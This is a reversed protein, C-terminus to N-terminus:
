VVASLYKFHSNRHPWQSKYSNLWMIFWSWQWHQTWFSNGTAVSSEQLSVWELSESCTVGLIHTRGSYLQLNFLQEYYFPEDHRQQPILSIFNMHKLCLRKFVHKSPTKWNGWFCKHHTMLIDSRLFISTETSVHWPILGKEFKPIKFMHVGYSQSNLDIIMTSYVCEQM